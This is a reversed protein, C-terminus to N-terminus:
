VRIAGGAQATNPQQESWATQAMIGQRCAPNRIQFLLTLLKEKKGLGMRHTLHLVLIGGIANYATGPPHLLSPAPPNSRGRDYSRQTRPPNRAKGKGGASKSVAWGRHGM